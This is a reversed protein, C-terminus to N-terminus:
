TLGMIKMMDKNIKLVDFREEALKRSREGMAPWSQRNLIFWKMRATLAITDGKPVLFGNEGEIVTERCGPVDTTIIPRGIAMAELVTRPMGEHYSPLVFIHCDRLAPRVDDQPGLYLVYGSKVWGNVEEIPISNPSSDTPGILYFLAEPHDEKVMAAARAYERLGKDVLLRAITLFVPRGEPLPSRPFRILNVGSGNVLGLQANAALIKRSFFAKDDPNQFIVASAGKLSSRCLTMVIESLLKRIFSRGNFAYGLGTILAYFRVHKMHRLSLGAWIVPKMTYALVIDPDLESFAKKFAFYTRVDRIPNLGNRWIKLPRFVAGLNEIRRRVDEDAPAAMATVEHGASVLTKILDGRFISLSAPHGGLICIRSM